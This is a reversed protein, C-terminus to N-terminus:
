ILNNVVEDLKVSIHVGHIEIKAGVEDTKSLNMM